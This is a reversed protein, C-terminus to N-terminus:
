HGREGRETPPPPPPAGNVSLATWTTPKSSTLSTMTVPVGAQFPATYPWCEQIGQLVMCIQQNAAGWSGPVAVDNDPTMVRIATATDFYLTNTVGDTVAQVPQGVIESGPVWAQALAAGPLAAVATLGVVARALFGNKM